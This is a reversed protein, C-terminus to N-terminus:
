LDLNKSLVRLPHEPGDCSISLPTRVLGDKVLLGTEARFVGRTNKWFDAKTMGAHENVMEKNIIIRM